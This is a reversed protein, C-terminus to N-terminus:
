NCSCSLRLSFFVGEVRGVAASNAPEPVISSPSFLETLEMMNPCLVYDQFLRSSASLQFWLMILLFDQISPHIHFSSVREALYQVVRLVSELLSTQYDRENLRTIASTLLPLFRLMQSMTCQYIVDPWFVATRRWVAELAACPWGLLRLPTLSCWLHNPMMFGQEEMQKADQFYLRELTQAVAVITDDVCM